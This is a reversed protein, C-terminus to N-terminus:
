PTEVEPYVEEMDKKMQANIKDDQDSMSQISNMESQYYVQDYSSSSSVSGVSM